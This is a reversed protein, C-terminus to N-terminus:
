QSVSVLISVLLGNHQLTTPRQVVLESISPFGGGDGVDRGDGDIATAHRGVEFCSMNANDGIRRSVVKLTSHHQGATALQKM